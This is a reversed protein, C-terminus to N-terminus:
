GFLRHMMRQRWESLAINGLVDRDGCSSGSIQPRRRRVARIQDLWNVVFDPAYRM